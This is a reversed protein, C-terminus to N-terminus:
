SDRIGLRRGGLSVIEVSAAEQIGPTMTVTYLLMLMDSFWEGFATRSMEVTVSEGVM